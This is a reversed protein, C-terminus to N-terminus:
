VRVRGRGLHVSLRFGWVAFTGVQLIEELTEFEASFRCGDCHLSVSENTFEDRM